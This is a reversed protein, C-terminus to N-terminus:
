KEEREEKAKAVTMAKQVPDFASGDVYDSKIGFASRLQEKKKQTAEAYQHTETSTGTGESSKYGDGVLKARLESVRQTVESESYSSTYTYIPTFYGWYCM